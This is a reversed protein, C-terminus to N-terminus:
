NGCVYGGGTQMSNQVRRRHGESWDDHDSIPILVLQCMTIITSPQWPFQDISFYLSNWIKQPNEGKELEALATL